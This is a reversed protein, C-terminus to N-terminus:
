HDARHDVPQGGLVLHEFRLASEFLVLRVQPAAKSRRDVLRDFSHALKRQGKGHNVSLLSTRQNWAKGVRDVECDDVIRNDNDTHDM